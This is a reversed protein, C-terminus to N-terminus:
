NAPVDLKRPPLITITVKPFWRPRLRGALRSFPTFEVGDLRVPLVMAESKDAILAPGDYVKMLAGGTVNLRGEPFIVCRSGERIAKILSKAAMPRSPEMPFVEVASLFPRVWWRQMQARDMAFVPLGPLFAAVLPADLFSVHNPVIIVRDGAAAVNEIGVGEVRYALRFLMRALMRLADRPLLKCIWVTVLANAVGLILVLEPSDVGAEILAAAVTAVGAM